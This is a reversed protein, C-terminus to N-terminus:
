PPGIVYFLKRKTEVLDATLATVQAELAKVKNALLINLQEVTWSPEEDAAPTPMDGWEDLKDEEFLPVQNM